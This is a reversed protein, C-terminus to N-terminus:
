AVKTFHKLPPVKCLKLVDQVADSGVIYVCTDHEQARRLIAVLCAALKTDANTVRTLNLWMAAPQDELVELTLQWFTRVIDINRLNGGVVIAKTPETHGQLFYSYPNEPHTGGM